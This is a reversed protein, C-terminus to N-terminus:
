AVINRHPHDTTVIGNGGQPSKAERNPISRVYAFTARIEATHPGRSEGEGRRGM